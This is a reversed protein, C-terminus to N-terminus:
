NEKVKLLFAIYNVQPPESCVDTDTKRESTINKLVEDTERFTKHKM